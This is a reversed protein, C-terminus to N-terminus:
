RVSQGLDLAARGVFLPLDALDLDVGFERGILEHLFILSLVTILRSSRPNLISSRLDFVAKSAVARDEIRLRGDEIRSLKAEARSLIKRAEGGLESAWKM